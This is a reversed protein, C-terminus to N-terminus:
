RPEGPQSSGPNTLSTIKRDRGAAQKRLEEKDALSKTITRDRDSMWKRLQFVQDHSAKSRAKEAGLGGRLKHVEQTM